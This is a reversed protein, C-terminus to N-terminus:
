AASGMRDRGLFAIVDQYFLYCTPVLPYWQVAFDPPIWSLREAALPQLVAEKDKLWVKLLTVRYLKELDLLKESVIEPGVEVEVGLEERWERALADMPSEGAEVKGGPYEWMSPRTTSPRSYRKTMLAQGHEDLMLGVVVHVVKHESM